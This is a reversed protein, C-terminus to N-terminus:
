KPFHYVISFPNFILSLSFSGFMFIVFVIIINSFSSVILTLFLVFIKIFYVKSIISRIVSQVLFYSQLLSFKTSALDFKNLHELCHNPIPLIKWPMFFIKTDLQFNLLLNSCLQLQQDHRLGLYSVGTSLISAGFFAFGNVSSINSVKHVTNSFM